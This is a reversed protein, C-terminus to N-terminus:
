YGQKAQKCSCCYFEPQNSTQGAMKKWIKIEMYREANKKWVMKYRNLTSGDCFYNEMNIYQHESLFLLMEKFLEEVCEKAKGSRFNNLTRFDRRNMAALWM